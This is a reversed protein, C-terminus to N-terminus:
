STMLVEKAGGRGRQQGGVADQCIDIVNGLAALVGVTVLARTVVCLSYFTVWYRCSYDPREYEIVRCKYLHFVLIFDVFGQLAM